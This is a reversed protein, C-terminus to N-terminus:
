STGLELPQGHEWEGVERIIRLLFVQDVTDVFRQDGLQGLSADIDYGSSRSQCILVGGFCQALDCTFEADISPTEFGSVMFGKIPKPPYTMPVNVSGVRLQKESLLEWITKEAIQYTSNFTLKHETAYYKEFDLIGHQGPGKGTMFTTWAAPTIPPQTSNLIGATGEAIFRKLHPM